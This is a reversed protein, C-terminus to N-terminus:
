NETELRHYEGTERWKRADIPLGTEAIQDDFADGGLPSPSFMSSCPHAWYPPEGKLMFLYFSGLTFYARALMSWQGKNGVFIIEEKSVGRFTDVVEFHVCVFEATEWHDLEPGDLDTRPRQLGEEGPHCM